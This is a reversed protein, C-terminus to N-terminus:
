RALHVPGTMTIVGQFAVAKRTSCKGGVRANVQHNVITFRGSGTVGAYAGTGHGLTYSGRGTITLLCTAKSFKQKSPGFKPVLTLTGGGLTVKGTNAGLNISGGATFAGTAIVSDVSSTVSTGMLVIHEYRHSAGPRSAATAALGAGGLATCLAATLGLVAALRVRARRGQAIGSM